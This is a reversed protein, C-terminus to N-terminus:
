RAKGPQDEIRHHAAPVLDPPEGIERVTSRRPSRAIRAPSSSTEPLASTLRELPMLIQLCMMCLRNSVPSKM